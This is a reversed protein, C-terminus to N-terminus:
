NTQNQRRRTKETIRSQTGKSKRIKKRINKKKRKTNRIKKLEKRRAEKTEETWGKMSIRKKKLPVDESNEKSKQSEIKSRKSPPDDNEFTSTDSADTDSNM